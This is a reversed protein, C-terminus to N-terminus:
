QLVAITILILSVFVKLANRQRKYKKVEGTLNVITNQNVIDINTLESVTAECSILQQSLNKNKNLLSDIRSNKNSIEQSLGKLETVTSDNKKIDDIMYGIIRRPVLVMTDSSVTKTDTQSFSQLTTM